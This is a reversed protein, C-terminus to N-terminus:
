SMDRKVSALEIDDEEGSETSDDNDKYTRSCMRKKGIKIIRSQTPDDYHITSVTSGTDVMVSAEKGNFYARVLSDQTHEKERTIITVTGTVKPSDDHVESQIPLASEQQTEAEKCGEVVLLDNNESSTDFPSHLGRGFPFITVEYETKIM